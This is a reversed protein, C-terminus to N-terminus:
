MGDIQRGKKRIAEWRELVLKGISLEHRMVIIVFSLTMREGDVASGDEASSSCCATERDAVHRKEILSFGFHWLFFLIAVLPHYRNKLKPTLTV